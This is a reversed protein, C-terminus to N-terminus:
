DNGTGQRAALLFNAAVGEFRLGVGFRGDPSPRCYVVRAKTRLNGVRSSVLLQEHPEMARRSLVRAGISSINETITREAGNSSQLKSLEFPMNLYLRKEIAGKTPSM